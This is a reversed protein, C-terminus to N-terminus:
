RPVGHVVVHARLETRAASAARLEPSLPAGDSAAPWLYGTASLTVLVPAVSVAGASSEDFGPPPPLAPMPDSLEVRAGWGVEVLGLSGPRVATPAILLPGGQLELQERGLAICAVASTCGADSAGRTAQVYTPGRPSSLEAVFALLVYSTLRQVQGELRTAGSAVVATHTASMAFVGLSALSTVLLFVIPLAAGRARVRRSWRQVASASM